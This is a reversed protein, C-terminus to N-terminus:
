SVASRKHRVLHVENYLTADQMQKKAQVTPPGMKKLKDIPKYQVQMGQVQQLGQIQTHIGFSRQKHYQVAKQRSLHVENTYLQTRCINKKSTRSTARTV